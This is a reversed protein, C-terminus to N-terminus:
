NTQVSKRSMVFSVAFIAVGSVLLGIALAFLLTNDGTAPLMAVGAGTGGLVPKYM